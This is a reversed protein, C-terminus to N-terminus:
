GRIEGNGDLVVDARARALKTWHEIGPELVEDWFRQMEAESKGGGKARLEAERAFRRPKSTEIDVDLFVLLDLDDAVRDFGDGRYGLYWGEVIVLDPARDIVVGAVRDDIAADFRPVEIPVAGARLARLAADLADIDYTWPPGRMAGGRAELGLYFDDMSLVLTNDRTAAIARALTTKGSGPPGCIGLVRVERETVIKEVTEVLTV